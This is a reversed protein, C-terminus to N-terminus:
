FRVKAEVKFVVSDDSFSSKQVGSVVYSSIVPENEEYVSFRADIKKTFSKVLDDEVVDIAYRKEKGKYTLSANVVACKNERPTYTIKNKSSDLVFRNEDLLDIYSLFQLEKKWSVSDFPVVVTDIGQGEVSVIKYLSANFRTLIETQTLLASTKKEKTSCGVIFLLSGIFILNLKNTM